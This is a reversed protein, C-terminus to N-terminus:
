RQLSIIDLDDPFSVPGSYHKRVLSLTEEKRNVTRKMLHTLLLNKVNAEAAMKGIYSPKMHLLAAVGTAEEPIANHAVLIDSGRALDPMARLRGSMDGTFSIVCGATEVRYGLAPFPGHHVSVSKIVTEADQYIQKISLDQYSWEITEAKLKYSKAEPTIYRNLYPYVGNDRNILREVFEGASPIIGKSGSPGFVPLDDKRKTFFGAKIYAPFAASHDVHFHSFLVVKLDEFSAGSKAFNQVTGPGADVLVHARNDLWLLYGTSAQGDMLEPGRSGLIQLKVREADCTQASVIQGTFLLVLGIFYIAKKM